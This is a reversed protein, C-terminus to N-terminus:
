SCIFWLKLPLMPKKKKLTSVIVFLLTKRNNQMLAEPSILHM